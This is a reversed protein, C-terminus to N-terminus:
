VEGRSPAINIWAENIESIVSRVAEIKDSSKQTNADLLENICFEYLRDLETAIRGGLDHNLTNKLELVIEIARGIAECRQAVDGRAISGDAIALKELLAKLLLATLQHPTADMLAKARGTEKYAQFAKLTANM